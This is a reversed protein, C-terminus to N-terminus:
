AFAEMKRVLAVVIKATKTAREVDEATAETPFVGLMAYIADAAEHLQALARTFNDGTPGVDVVPGKPKALMRKVITTVGVEKDTTARSALLARVEAERLAGVRLNYGVSRVFPFNQANFWAGFEQDARFLERAEVLLRGIAFQAEIGKGYESRIGEAIVVLRDEARTEATALAEIKAVAVAAEHPNYDATAAIARVKDLKSRNDKTM